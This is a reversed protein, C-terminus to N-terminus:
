YLLEYNKSSFIVTIECDILQFYLKLTKKKKNIKEFPILHKLSLFCVSICQYREKLNNELPKQNAKLDIVNNNTKFSNKM